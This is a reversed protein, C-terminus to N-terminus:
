EHEALVLMVKRAVHEALKVPVANGIMQEVDKKTGTFKFDAPFTQIRAREGSTLARIGSPACSDKGHEKYTAPKPSNQGRM